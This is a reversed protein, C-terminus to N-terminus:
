CIYTLYINHKNSITMEFSNAFPKTPINLFSNILITSFNFQIPNNNYYVGKTIVGMKTVNKNKDCMKQYDNKKILFLM